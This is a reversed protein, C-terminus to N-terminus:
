SEGEFDDGAGPSKEAAETVVRNLWSYAEITPMGQEILFRRIDTTPIGLNMMNRAQNKLALSRGRTFKSVEISSAANLSNIELAGIRRSLGRTTDLIEMLVDNQPRKKADAVPLFSVAETFDKEFSPWYVDFARLLVADDLRREDLCANLTKVLEFMDSRNAKTHNFQALPDTLDGPELDILFTCIRNSSIGKALAGTEFLIWPRDKNEMTLCVIGVSVDRLKDNIESFWLAGRDIHKTSIWPESAQIVCKIWVSMLDAVIRSKEGSWSIFVKM